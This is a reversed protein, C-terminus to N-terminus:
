ERVGGNYKSHKPLFSNEIELWRKEVRAHMTDTSDDEKLPEGKAGVEQLWDLCAKRDDIGYGFMINFEAERFPLGVKLKDVKALVKVGTPRKIKDITKVVRGVQALYLVQSSYFDLARGGTRTTKRGFTVGIKDRVQSIVMMTIRDSMARILRRFLESMKKAKEGGYSGADIDREAEATSSLADLSDVIFLEPQKAGKACKSLDNFLEEVTNIMGNGFDVQKMPMGLLQAYKPQFAAETERYRIRGKPYKIAFNTAAEIALLTKGTSKDGVVNSVRQEAWGGGLALDLVKCGSSFFHVTDDKAFYQSHKTPSPPELKKRAIM